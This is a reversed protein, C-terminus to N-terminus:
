NHDQRRSINKYMEKEEKKGKIAELSGDGVLELRAVVCLIDYEFDNTRKTGCSGEM